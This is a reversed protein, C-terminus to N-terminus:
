PKVAAVPAVESRCATCALSNTVRTGDSVGVDDTVGEIVALVDSLAVLVGEADTVGELVGDPEMVALPDDDAVCVCTLVGEVVEVGEGEKELDAEMVADRVGDADMVALALPVPLAERVAVGVGVGVADADAHNAPPNAVCMPERPWSGMANVDAVALMAPEANQGPRTLTSANVHRVVTRM